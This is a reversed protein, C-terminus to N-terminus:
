RGCCRPTVGVADLIEELFIRSPRHPLLQGSRCCASRVGNGMAALHCLPCSKRQSVHDIETMGLGVAVCSRRFQDFTNKDVGHTLCTVGWTYFLPRPAVPLGHTPCVLGWTYVLPTLRKEPRSTYQLTLANPNESRAADRTFFSLLVFVPLPCAGLFRCHFQTCSAAADLSKCNTTTPPVM